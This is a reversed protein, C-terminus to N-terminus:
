KWYGELIGTKARSFGVEILEFDDYPNYWNVTKSCRHIKGGLITPIKDWPSDGRWFNLAQSVSDVCDDYEGFPFVTCQDMITKIWDPYGEKDKPDGDVVFKVLGKEFLPSVAAARSVKDKDVKIARVPMTTSTQLMQILSQGSAKDEILVLEPHHKNYFDQTKLVLDPFTLREIMADLLYYSGKYKGWVTGVSFDNSEGDKFATDLSIIKSEWVYSKENGVVFDKEVLSKSSVVSFWEPKFVSENDQNSFRAFIEQDRILSPTESVYREIEEIPICPNDYTTATYSMWNPYRNDTPDTHLGRQYFEWFLHSGGKANVKGKPTGVFLCRAGYDMIMPSLANYWLYDNKLIIGAENCIILDFSFGEMGEPKEASRMIMQGDLLDLINKSKSWRWAKRTLKNLTPLFYKQYYLPLNGQITDVWLIKKGAILMEIAFMAAGLTGGCRRGKCFTVFQHKDEFVKRQIPTYGFKLPEGNITLSLEGPKIPAFGNKKDKATTRRLKELQKVVAM